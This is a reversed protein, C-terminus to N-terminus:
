HVPKVGVAILGKDMEDGCGDSHDDDLAVGTAVPGGAGDAPTWLHVDGGEFWKTYSPSSGPDVLPFQGSGIAAMNTWKGEISRNAHDGDDDHPAVDVWLHHPGNQGHDLGPTLM